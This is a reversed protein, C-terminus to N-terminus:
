GLVYTALVKQIEYVNVSRNFTKELTPEVASSIWIKLEADLDFHGASEISFRSISKYPISLYETKHGTLGQKDILLLRKDTFIYVDRILKFALVVKEDPVFLNNYQEQINEGSANGANGFLAGIIGMIKGEQLLSEHFIHGARFFQKAASLDLDYM